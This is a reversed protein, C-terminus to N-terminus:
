SKGTLLNAFMAVAAFTMIMATLWGLSRLWRSSVRRGMIKEQSSLLVVIVILPPALVGNVVASWFLMAIVNFGSYALGLGALLAVGLV